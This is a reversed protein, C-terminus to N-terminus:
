HQYRPKPPSAPGLRASLWKQYLRAWTGDKRLRELVGNVFRVLDPADKAVAIGYPEDSFRRGVLKTDPDQAALAALLADDTSIADVTGQQLMVLCDVDDPAGVARPRSPWTAITRISTTSNSACVRKGGLEDLSEVTSKSSVLVRQGAAYYETSFSVDKRRECTMTMNAVVLDVSHNQIVKKREESLVSRFVIKNPDEFLARALEKALDVEFGSMQGTVPDQFSLLYTNLNVGVTLHGRRQIRAMTSGPPLHAPSPLPGLPRLSERPDCGKGRAPPVTAPDQVGSPSPVAVSVTTTASAGPSASGPRPGTGCGAVMVLAAAAVVWRGASM